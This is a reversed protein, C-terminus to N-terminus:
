KSDVVEWNRVETDLVEGDDSTCDIDYDLEDIFESLEVGEELIVQLTISMNITVKRSM